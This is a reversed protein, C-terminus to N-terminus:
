KATLIYSLEPEYKWMSWETSEILPALKSQFAKWEAASMAKEAGLPGDLEAWGSLGLYSHIENSPTGFRAVAVGYDTAGSKKVAPVIQDRFLAKLDDMKGSVVRTRGVRVMPPVEKSRIMMDPQMEDIWTELGDTVTDLRAFMRAMDAEVPQLKPNQEGLQKWKTSYWVVAHQSPGSQSEWVTFGQDSGAKKVLAAYDKVAAKWSDEQGMKVRVFLVTRINGQAWSAACFTTLAIAALLCGRLSFPKKM